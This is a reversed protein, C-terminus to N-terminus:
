LDWSPVFDALRKGNPLVGGRPLYFVVTIGEVELLHGWPLANASLGENRLHPVYQRAHLAFTLSLGRSLLIRLPM